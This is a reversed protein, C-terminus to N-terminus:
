NLWPGYSQIVTQWLLMWKLISQQSPQTHWTTVTSRIWGLAMVKYLQKHSYCGSWYLSNHRNHTGPQSPAELEFWPGYSQIVTQSLLM